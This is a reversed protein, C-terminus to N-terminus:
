FVLKAGFSVRRVPPYNNYGDGYTSATGMEPSIGKVQTFYYLNNGSLTFTVGKLINKKFLKEPMSYQLSIERICLYDGKYTFIDNVSRNYNDNGWASDNATFKAFRTQDGEQKWCKLVEAALAYNCTYTSYFYRNYAEDFIVHGMAWDLYISLTWNKYRFNNTLGGTFTPVTVGLCFQDATTIQGDGNRDTWEYDGIRKQGKSPVRSLNDYYAQSLDEENQFIGLAKYGYLRYLPEGEAIGGFFTGDGLAIGGTRGQAIGNDPLSVVENRNYSLVLKSDWNFNKNQINHTTLEYELGWFRVKGINTWITSFGTTNPLTQEYLLNHTYKDYYDFSMYIRNNVLGMEFGVDLQTTTEWKLGENPMETPKIGAVSNYVYNAGYAGYADYVGVGGSNGTSGYSVRLKFFDFNKINKLWPEETLVWGTSIGPFFGWRNDGVFKSSGDERFTASVMYKGKFDYNIRGFFGMQTEKETSSTVDSIDVNSSGNITTIKDSTSGTGAMKAVEYYRNQYSYGLMASFNHAAAWTKKYQLYIDAKIRETLNQAWSSKRSADFVNERVFSTTKTGQNYFSGQVNATLGEVINWNLGGILSLYNKQKNNDYYEQYFLPTQSTANYGEVPTGDDYYANMTPPNALGRAIINRQNEYEQHFSNKRENDSKTKDNEIGRQDNQQNEDQNATHPFDVATFLVIQIPILM